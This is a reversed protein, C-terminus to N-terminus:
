FIFFRIFPRTFAAAEADSTPPAIRAVAPGAAAALGLEDSPAEAEPVRILMAGIAWSVEGPVEGTPTRLAVTPPRVSPAILSVASAVLADDVMALVVPPSPPRSVSFLPVIVEDQLKLVLVPRGVPVAVMVLAVAVASPRAPTLRLALGAGFVVTSPSPAMAEIVRFWCLVAPSPVSVTCAMWMVSSPEPWVTSMPVLTQLAASRAATGTSGPLARGIRRPARPR